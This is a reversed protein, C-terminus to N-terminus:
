IYHIIKKFIVSALSVWARPSKQWTMSIDITTPKQVIVKRLIFRLDDFKTHQKVVASALICQYITSKSRKKLTVSATLKNKISRPKQIIVQSLNFSSNDEFTIHHKVVKLPLFPIYINSRSGSKLTM